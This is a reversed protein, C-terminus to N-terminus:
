NMPYSSASARCAQPLPNSAETQLAEAVLVVERAAEGCIIGLRANFAHLIRVFLQPFTTVKGMFLTSLHNASRSIFAGLTGFVQCKDRDVVGSVEVKEVISLM